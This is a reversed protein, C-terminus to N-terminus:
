EEKTNTRRESALKRLAEIEAESLPEPLVLKVRAFLDGRESPRELRPMGKGKLRFIRDAQTRRPIKLLVAGDLTPVRVQGGTAATYFDVPVVTTLDDGDREFLPHPAVQVVLYLDGAPGGGSGPSGQGSLRVRTGTRAGPPIKAEIRREGVQISRTTGHFAEELSIEVLVEADRGRRPRAARASRPQGFVSSFFDSFPSADGFLDELDEPTVNYTYVQQGPTAQWQGWNFDGAGGRQQWRQYQERLEDYKRRREPDSLAQYAENIEKFREEAQKDDPNVDPHYQRALKRYAQKIAQDDADPAVGLVTYYDKFEM